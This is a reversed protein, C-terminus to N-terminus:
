VRRPNLFKDHPRTNRPNSSKKKQRTKMKEAEKLTM